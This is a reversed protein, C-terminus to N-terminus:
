GLQDGTAPLGVAVAFGCHESILVSRPSRHDVLLLPVTKSWRHYGRGQRSRLRSRSRPPLTILQRVTPRYSLGCIRVVSNWDPSLLTGCRAAGAAFLLDVIATQHHQAIARRQAVM